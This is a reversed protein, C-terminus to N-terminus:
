PRPHRLSAANGLATSVDGSAITLEGLATSYKGDAVTDRGATLAAVGSAETQHGLAVSYNGSATTENGMAFAAKGEATTFEGGAFAVEGSALTRRGSATAAWGAGVTEIGWTSAYHGANRTRHGVLHVRDGPPPSPPPPPCPPPPAPPPPSPPPPSPPPARTVPADYPYIWASFSYGTEHARILGSCPNALAFDDKGDCEMAVETHEFPVKTLTRGNLVAFNGLHPEVDPTLCHLTRETSYITQGLFTGPSLSPHSRSLKYSPYATVSYNAGNPRSLTAEGVPATGRQQLLNRRGGPSTAVPAASPITALYPCTMSSGVYAAPTHSFADASVGFSCALFKSPAFNYGEVEIFEGGASKMTQMALPKSNISYM